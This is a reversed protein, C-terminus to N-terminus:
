NYLSSMRAIFCVQYLRLGSCPVPSYQELLSQRLQNASHFNLQLLCSLREIPLSLLSVLSTVGIQKLLAVAKDDLAPFKQALDSLTIAGVM